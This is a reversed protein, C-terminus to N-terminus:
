ENLTLLLEKFESTLREFWKCNRQNSQNIRTNMLKRHGRKTHYYVYDIIWKEMEELDWARLGSSDAIVSVSLESFRGNTLKHFIRDKKISLNPSVCSRKHHYARRRLNQTSGIYFRGTERHIIMYVSPQDTLSKM